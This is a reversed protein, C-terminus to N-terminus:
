RTSRELRAVTRSPGHGSTRAQDPDRAQVESVAADPLDPWELRGVPPPTMRAEADRSAVGM